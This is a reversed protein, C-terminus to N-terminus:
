KSEEARSMLIIEFPCRIAGVPCITECDTCYDCKEPSIAVAKGNVLAVAGTPCWEVCDGCDTCEDLKIEPIAGKMIGSAKRFKQNADLM